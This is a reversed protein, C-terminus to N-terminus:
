GTPRTSSQGAAQTRQGADSTNDPLLVYLRGAQQMHGALRGADRGIGFFVDARVPGKIAGGTDQALMLRRYPQNGRPSTTDLWVPTGLPIYAPDVAISAQPTLVVQMAGVPGQDPANALRFFVYSPNSNLVSEAEDQHDHLWRTISQLTVAGPKIAGMQILRNGIAVYPYGNQDAYSVAILSGDPLRVLGSGQVQLMFLAVPDDVWLLEQGRLPDASNTIQGRSYYPVVRDGDLRGRVLKGRLEPYLAGLDVRVLNGPRRYLPYRFRASPTLSGRLIPEYYGTILGQRHGGYGIVEHARFYQEFFQRAQADDPTAPLGEAARCITAWTADRGSLRDCDRILAPWAAAQGGSNWGPLSSWAVPQGIGPQRPVLWACASLAAVLSVMLIARTIAGRGSVPMERIGDIMVRAM